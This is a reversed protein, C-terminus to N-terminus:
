VLILSFYVYEFSAAAPAVAAEVFEVVADPAAPVDTIPINVKPTGLEGAPM